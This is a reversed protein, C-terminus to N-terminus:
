FRLIIYLLFFLVLNSTVLAHLDNKCALTIVPMKLSYVQEIPAKFLYCIMINRKEVKSKKTPLKRM